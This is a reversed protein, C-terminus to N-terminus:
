EADAQNLEDLRDQLRGREAELLKVKLRAQKLADKTEDLEAERARVLKATEGQLDALAKLEDVKTRLRAVEAETNRVSQETAVVVARVKDPERQERILMYETLVDLKVMDAFVYASGSARLADGSAAAAGGGASAVGSVFLTGGAVGLGGSALSGGGLLALGANTAAAGSLGMTSGIAGGILPAALGGTIAGLVAGGGAVLGVRKWNLNRLAFKRARRRLERDLEQVYEATLPAGMAEAIAALKRARVDKEYKVKPPWPYFAALEVALLVARDRRKVTDLLGSIFQWDRFLRRMTPRDATGLSRRLAAPWRSGKLRALLRDRQPTVPRGSGRELRFVEHLERAYQTVVKRKAERDSQDPDLSLDEEMLWLKAAALVFAEEDSLTFQKVARKSDAGGV